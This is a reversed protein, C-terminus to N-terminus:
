AIFIANSKIETKGPQPCGKKFPNKIGKTSCKPNISSFCKKPLTDKFLFMNQKWPTENQIILFGYDRM